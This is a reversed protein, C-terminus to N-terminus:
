FAFGDDFLGMESEDGFLVSEIDNFTMDQSSGSTKEQVEKLKQKSKDVCNGTSVDSNSTRKNPPLSGEDGGTGQSNIVNTNRIDVTGKGKTIREVIGDIIRYLGPDCVLLMEFRNGIMESEIELAKLSGIDKRLPKIYKNEAVVLIRM